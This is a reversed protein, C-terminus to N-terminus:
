LYLFKFNKRKKKWNEKWGIMYFIFSRRKTEITSVSENLYKLQLDVVESLINLTQIRKNNVVLNFIVNYFSSSSSSVGMFDLIHFTM